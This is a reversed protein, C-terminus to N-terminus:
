ARFARSAFDFFRDEFDQAVAAAVDAASGPREAPESREWADIYADSDGLGKQMAVADILAQFRETLAHSVNDNADRAEVVAPIGKWSVVVYSAM